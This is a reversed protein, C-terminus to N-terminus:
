TNTSDAKADLSRYPYQYQPGRREVGTLITGLLRAGTAGLCAYAEIADQRRSHSARLVMVTGDAQGALIRADATSLAPPTDLIVFDYKKKWRRLWAAFVGNALLEVDRESAAIGAPMLDFEDERSRVIEPKDISEGSLVSLLGGRDEADFLMSLTRQRLDADVLLVKKGLQGLSKSLLVAVSTKGANTEPSTIAVAAGNTGLLRQLVATRVMRISEILVSNQTLENSEPLVGRIRPLQGLFPTRTVCVLDCAAYIAPDTSSRLYGVAIAFGLAGLIAFATMIIRRDKAPVSSRPAMSVISVRGAPADREVDLADIRNDFRALTAKKRAIKELTETLKGAVVAVDKREKELIAIQENDSTIRRKAVDIAIKLAEPDLVQGEDPLVLMQRPTNALPRIRTADAQRLRQEVDDLRRKAQEVSVGLAIIKPHIDGWNLRALELVNEATVLQDHYRRWMPDDALSPTPDPEADDDPSPAGAKAGDPTIGNKELKAKLDLAVDRERVRNHLDSQLDYIRNALRDTALDPSSTQLDLSYSFRDKALNDISSILAKQQRRLAQLKKAGLEEDLKAAVGKYVRVTANVIESADDPSDSTMTVNILETGAGTRVKLVKRLRDLPSPPHGILVFPEKAYWATKRVAPEDLVKDLVEPSRIIAAQLNKYSQYLPLMGNDETKYLIRPVVPAVRIIASARYQPRILLWVGPVAAGAVLVFVVLMLLKRRLLGSISAQMSMGGPPAVVDDIGGFELSPVSDRVLPGVPHAPAIDPSGVFTPLTSESRESESM